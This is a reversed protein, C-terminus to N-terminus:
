AASREAFKAAQEVMYASPPTAMAEALLPSVAALDIIISRWFADEQYDTEPDPQNVPMLPPQGLVPDNLILAMPLLKLLVDLPNKAPTVSLARTAQIDEDTLQDMLKEPCPEAFYAALTARRWREFAALVDPSPELSM